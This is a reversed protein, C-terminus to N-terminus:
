ESHGDNQVSFLGRGNTIIQGPLETPVQSRLGRPLMDIGEFSVHLVDSNRRNVYNLYTENRRKRAYKRSIGLAKWNIGQFDCEDGMLDSYKVRSQAHRALQRVERPYPITRPGTDLHPNRQGQWIWHRLFDVVGPNEPGLSMPNPNSLIMPHNTNLEDDNLIEEAIQLQQELQTLTETPADGTTAATSGPSAPHSITTVPQGEAMSVPQSSNPEPFPQDDLSQVHNSASPADHDMTTEIASVPASTAASAGAMEYDYGDNEDHIGEIGQHHDLVEYNDEPGSDSDKEASTTDHPHSTSASHPNHNDDFIIPPNEHLPTQTPHSVAFSSLPVSNSTASYSAPGDEGLVFAADDVPTTSAAISTLSSRHM